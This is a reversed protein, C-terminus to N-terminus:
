MFATETNRWFEWPWHRQIEESANIGSGGLGLTAVVSQFHTKERESFHCSASDVIVETASEVAVRDVSKPMHRMELFHKVVLRLQCNSIEFRELNSAIWEKLVDCPINKLVHPPIHRGLLTSEKGRFVGVTWSWVRDNVRTM